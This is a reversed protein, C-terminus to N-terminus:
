RLFEVNPIRGRASVLRAAAGRAWRKVYPARKLADRKISPNPMM